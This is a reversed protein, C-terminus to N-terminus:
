SDPRDTWVFAGKERDKITRNSPFATGNMTIYVGAPALQATAFAMGLNFAADSDSFRAPSLAGVLVVTKGSIGALEKATEVMTDTGHTIIIRSSQVACVRDKLRARDCDDLELSDKRMVEEIVFPLTVRAAELMKGVTTDGVQYESTADFYQKDITGGTTLLLIPLADAM